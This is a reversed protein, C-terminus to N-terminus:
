LKLHYSRHKKIWQVGLSEMDSRSAFNKENVMVVELHEYRDAEQISQWMAKYLVADVGLNQYEPLVGVGNAILWRTRRSEFMIDFMALPHMRGRHRRLADSLDPYVLAFGIVTDGKLVLKILRPDAVSILANVVSQLEQPTNPHWEHSHAFAKEHVALVRPAWEFLDKKSNFSKVIYGRRQRIKDAIELLRPSLSANAPVYGSWHDTLKTFGSRAIFSDYYSFNYPVGMVARRDFGEVLVGSADSGILGRPGLVTDRGRSRAWDFVSEFLSCAAQHDEVVDFAWFFAAKVNRYQNHQTNHIAAIRGLVDGESEVLFFEASSHRYFPHKRRNLVMREGSELAPCFFPTGSYQTLPFQLFKRVEHPNDTDIKRIRM